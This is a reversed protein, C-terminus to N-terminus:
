SLIRQLEEMSIADVDVNGSSSPTLSDLKRKDKASMLGHQTYTADEYVTKNLVDDIAEQVQPGTNNLRYSM